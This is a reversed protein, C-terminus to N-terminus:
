HDFVYMELTTLADYITWIYNNGDYNWYGNKFDGMLQDFAEQIISGDIFDEMKLLAKLVWAITYYNVVLSDEKLGMQLSIAEHSNKWLSKNLLIERVDKLEEKLNRSIAGINQANYLSIIAASTHVISPEIKWIINEKCKSTWFKIKNDRKISSKLLLDCLQSIYISDPEIKCLINILLCLTFNSNITGIMRHIINHLDNTAQIYQPSHAAFLAYAVWATAEPAGCNNIQSVAGWGGNAHRFNWLSQILDNKKEIYYKQNSNLKELILLGYATSIVGVKRDEINKSWGWFVKGDIEERNIHQIVRHEIESYIESLTIGKNNIHGNLKIFHNITKQNENLFIYQSYLVNDNISHLYFGNGGGNSYGFVTGGSVVLINKHNEISLDYFVDASHKHGHMLIQFNKDSITKKLLGANTICDFKKIEEACSITTTHHHLVAIKYFSSLDIKRNIIEYLANFLFLERPDIRAPDVNLEKDLIEIFKNTDHGMKKSKINEIFKRDTESLVVQSRSIISSNFAYIFVHKKTDLIFPFHIKSFSVNDEVFGFIDTINKKFFSNFFDVLENPNKDINELWPRTFCGNLLSAFDMWNSNEIVDHNGPVILIHNSSPFIGNEQMSYVLDNFLDFGKKNGGTTIDGSVVVYDLKTSIEKIRAIFQKIRIDSEQIKPLETKVDISYDKSLYHIDSLHLINLAYESKLELECVCLFHDYENMDIRFNKSIWDKSIFIYDNQNGNYRTAESFVNTMEIFLDEALLNLKSSNFDGCIVLPFHDNNSKIKNYMEQYLDKHELSDSGLSHFPLMHGTIIKIVKGKYLIKTALFGKNDSKIEIGNKEFCINPNTLRIEFSDIIEYKSLISVGMMTNDTLHASSLEYYQSFGFSLKNQLENIFTSNGMSSTQVEQLCLVDVMNKKVCGAIYDISDHNDKGLATGINWTALRM